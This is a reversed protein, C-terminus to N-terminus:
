QGDAGELGDIIKRVRMQTSTIRDRCLAILAAARDVRDALDDLDLEDGEITAVIQELERLAEGFKLAEQKESDM